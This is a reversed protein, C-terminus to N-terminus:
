LTQKNTLQTLINKVDSLTNEIGLMKNELNNIKEEHKREKAIQPNLETLISSCSEVVKKHYDVNDLITQSYHLLSEVESNIANKDDSVIVTGGEYDFISKNSPLQKFESEVGDVNVLVDVVTEFGGITTQFSTNYKPMPNSVKVVRGVSLVPVRNKRLIYFVNEPRLVSFM